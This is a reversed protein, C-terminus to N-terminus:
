QTITFYSGNNGSDGFVIIQYKHGSAVNPVTVKIEGLLINFGEALPNAFDLVGNNSLIIEGKNNTIQKPPNTVNWKVTQETGVKWVTGKGPSIVPPVFVDRKLLEASIPAATSFSLLACLTFIITTLFFKM